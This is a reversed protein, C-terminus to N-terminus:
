YIESDAEYDFEWHRGGTSASANFGKTNAKIINIKGGWDISINFTKITPVARKEVLFGYHLLWQDTNINSWFSLDQHKEYYRQCLNLELSYPRIEFNTKKVGFELQVFKFDASDFKIEVQSNEVLTTFSGNNIAKGNIFAKATGEWSLTYKGNKVVNLNEIYQIIYTGDYYWRDYNYANEKEILSKSERQNVRLDGNIILNKFGSTEIKSDFRQDLDELKEKLDKTFYKLESTEAINSLDLNQLNDRNQKIYNVIEQLEDLSTDDSALVTKISEIADSAVKVKENLVRGQNASLPVDVLTSVLNDVIDVINVKLDLSTQLDKVDEISLSEIKQRNEKIYDVIEQLQDLSTDDSSLINSIAEKLIELTTQNTAM